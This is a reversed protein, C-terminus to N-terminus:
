ELIRASKRTEPKNEMTGDKNILNEEEEEFFIKTPITTRKLAHKKIRVQKDAEATIKKYM